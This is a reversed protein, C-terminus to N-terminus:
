DWPSTVCGWLLRLGDKVTRKPHNAILMAEGWESPLRRLGGGGGTFLEQGGERGWKKRLLAWGVEEEFLV